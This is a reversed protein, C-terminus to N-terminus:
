QELTFGTKLHCFRRCCEQNLDQRAVGVGSPPLWFPTSSPHLLLAMQASVLVRLLCIDPRVQFCAWRWLARLTGSGLEIESALEEDSEEVSRAEPM